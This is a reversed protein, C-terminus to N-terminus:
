ILSTFVIKHSNCTNNYNFNYNYFHRYTLKKIKSKLKLEKQIWLHHKYKMTSSTITVVASEIEIGLPIFVFFIFLYIGVVVEAFTLVNFCSFFFLPDRVSAEKRSQKRCVEVLLRFINKGKHSQFSLWAGANVSVTCIRHIVLEDVSVSVNRSM